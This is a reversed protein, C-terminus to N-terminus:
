PRWGRIIRDIENIEKSSWENSRAVSLVKVAAQNLQDKIVEQQVEFRRALRMKSTGREILSVEAQRRDKKFIEIQFPGEMFRFIASKGKVDSFREWEELWWALVISVSDAWNKEPFQQDPFEFWIEGVINGSRNLNFTQSELNIKM